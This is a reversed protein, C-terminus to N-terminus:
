GGVLPPPALAPVAKAREAQLHIDAPLFRYTAYATVALAAFLAVSLWSLTHGIGWSAKKAGVLFIGISGALTGATNYLGYAISWRNAPLVSCFIPMSNVELMGRAVSYLLLVTAVGRISPMFGIALLAPAMVSFGIVQFAMRARVNRRYWRDALIGGGIGGVLAPLSAFLTVMSGAHTLSQKFHEFFYTPLWSQTPWSTLSLAFALFILSLATHSKLVSFIKNQAEERTLEPERPAPVVISDGPLIAMSLLAVVLGIGGLWCFGSRWSYHDTMFGGYWSGLGAGFTLGSLAISNALSRTREHHYSAIYALAPPLFLAESVGLLCRLEILERGTRAFGSVFTVCSFLLLSLLIVRKRSFRDGLYGGIPSFVAYAWLFTSGLLALGIDTLHLEGKLVPMVSFIATRDTYNLCAMLWIVSVVVWKRIPNSDRM